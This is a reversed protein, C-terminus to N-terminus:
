GMGMCDNIGGLTASVKYRCLLVVKTGWVKGGKVRGYSTDGGSGLFGM